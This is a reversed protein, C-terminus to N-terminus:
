MGTWLDMYNWDNANYVLRFSDDISSSCGQADMQM